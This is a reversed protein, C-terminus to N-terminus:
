GRRWDDLKLVLYKYFVSNNIEDVYNESAEAVSRLTELEKILNPLEDRVYTLDNWNEHDDWRDLITKMLNLDIM